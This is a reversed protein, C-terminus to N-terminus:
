SAWARISPVWACASVGIRAGSAVSAHSPSQAKFRGDSHMSDDSSCMHDHRIAGSAEAHVHRRSRGSQQAAICGLVFVREAAGIICKRSGYQSCIKVPKQSSQLPPESPRQGQHVWCLAQSPVCRRCTEPSSAAVLRYIAGCIPTQKEEASTLGCPQLRLFRARLRLQICQACIWHRESVHSARSLAGDGSVAAALAWRWRGYGAAQRRVGGSWDGM